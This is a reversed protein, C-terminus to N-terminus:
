YNSENSIIEIDLDYYLGQLLSLNIINLGYNLDINSIFLNSFYNNFLQFSNYNIIGYYINCKNNNNNNNHYPIQLAMNKINFLLSINNNKISYTNNINLQILNSINFIAIYHPMFINNNTS